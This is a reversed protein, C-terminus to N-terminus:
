FRKTSLVKMEDGVKINKGAYHGLTVVNQGFFLNGKWKDNKFGCDKGTRFSKLVVNVQPDKDGTTLNITPVQCRDCPKVVRMVVSNDFSVQDWTDEYWPRKCGSVVINPRFNLMSVHNTLRKNLDDVSEQNTLLFPYGDAFGTESNPAFSPNTSRCCDDAMKVLRLDKTDLFSNFWDCIEKDYVFAQCEDGWVTCSVKEMNKETSLSINLVKEMGPAKVILLNVNLDINTEIFCMKSHTRQSVFKNDKDVLMFCRDYEFGRESIKWVKPSIGRCSKIPYIWIEQVKIVRNIYENILNLSLPIIASIAFLGLGISVDNSSM